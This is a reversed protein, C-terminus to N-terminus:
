DSLTPYDTYGEAGLTYFLDMRPPNLEAGQAMRTALDPNALFPRGFAVLDGRGAELAAEASTRDYGGSLIVSGSFADRLEDKLGTPLPPAGMAEHDVVHLYVLGLEGLARVLAIYQERQEDFPDVDNFVGAPSIRIGVREGGIAAVVAEAVEIM